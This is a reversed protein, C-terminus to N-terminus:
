AQQCDPDALDLAATMEMGTTTVIKVAIRGSAPVEFPASRMSTLAEQEAEDANRGLEKILNKILRDGDAGPFHIRRAFFSEGDYDTDVMWCAIEDPGGGAPAGTAPDFTDYGAVAVAIRGDPYSDVVKIDPRGLIVFAEHGTEDSLDRIILDRNMQAQAVGIRGVEHPADPAFAYAVVLLLDAREESSAIERAAERIMEGPVTVDEAAVMVAATREATGGDVTYVAKWALLQSDGPWPELSRVTLDANARGGDIARHLLATEVAHSFDGQATVQDDDTGELPIVTAWPQESEVTLPSAVRVVGRKRRPQDVLMIPDPDSDYALVGASVQPVREYVFGRAPDDGWGGEPAQQQPKGSIDAEQVSGYDSDALAWYDFTTTSLRQRAIAVSIPSTDCTIWRRGWKEAATATTAGGCTPDFVLDGPDTSMLMCREIVSDATQVVYRKDSASMQRHWINNIPRGPVEAEYRKWSLHSTPGAADLRGLEALRDM